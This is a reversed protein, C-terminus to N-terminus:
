HSEDVGPQGPIARLNYCPRKGNYGSKARSLNTRQPTAMTGLLGERFAVPRRCITTM